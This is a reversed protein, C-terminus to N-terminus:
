APILKTLCGRGSNNEGRGSNNKNMGPLYVTGPNSGITKFEGPNDSARSSGKWAGTVALATQYQVSEIEKMRCNMRNPKASNVTDDEVNIEDDEIGDFKDNAKNKARLEPIHCNLVGM